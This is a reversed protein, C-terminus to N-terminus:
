TADRGEVDFAVFAEDLRKLDAAVGTFEVVEPLPTLLLTEDLATDDFLIAPTDFPSSFLRNVGGNPFEDVLANAGGVIDASTSRETARFFEIEETLELPIFEVKPELELELELEFGLELGELGEEDRRLDNPDRERNSATALLSMPTPTADVLLNQYYKIYGYDIIYRQFYIDKVIHRENM